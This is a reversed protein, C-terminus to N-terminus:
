LWSGIKRSITFSAWTTVILLEEDSPNHTRFENIINENVQYPAFATLLALKAVTKDASNLGSILQNLWAQSLGKDQGDWHNITSEILLRVDESILQNNLRDLLASFSAFAQSINKDEKAWQMDEPLDTSTIFQLSEGANVKKNLLRKALTAGFLRLAIKRLKVSGAPIPLPSSQLFVGVMRNIFHYVIATGIIKPAEAKNFPPHKIIDSEPNKTSFAWAVIERTKDDQILSNDQDFIAQVVDHNYGAHLMGSHADVCYPCENTVSVASAVAELISRPTSGSAIQSERVISWAATLLETSPSFLTLPPLVQFDRRIQLYVEALKGTAENAIVPKIFRVQKPSMDDVMWNEINQLISYTM